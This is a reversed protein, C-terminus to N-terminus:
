SFTTCSAHNKRSPETCSFIDWMTLQRIGATPRRIATWGVYIKGINISWISEVETASSGKLSKHVYCCRFAHM